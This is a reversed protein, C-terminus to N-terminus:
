RPLDGDIWLRWNRADKRYELTWDGPAIQVWSHLFKFDLDSTLQAHRVLVETLNGPGSLWQIDRSTGAAALLRATAQTLAAGIVPHNAPAFIPDNALYFIFDDAADGAYDAPVVMSDTSLQYCLPQLQLLGARMLPLIAEPVKLEDDADVYLGGNIQLYCLRFYDSRMAPHICSDFALLHTGDFNQAIFARAQKRDFVQREFGLRELVLWSDM